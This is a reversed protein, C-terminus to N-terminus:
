DHKLQTNKPRNVFIMSSYKIQEKFNNKLYKLAKKFYKILIEM